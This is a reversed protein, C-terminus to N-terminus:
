SYRLGRLRIFEESIKTMVQSNTVGESSFTESWGGTVPTDDKSLFPPLSLDRRIWRLISTELDQIILGDSEEIVQLVVWGHQQFGRLREKKSEPNTIGIKRAGLTPNEIFYFLGAKSSTYGTRACTPCGTGNSRNAVQARFSHGNPCFWWAYTKSFSSVDRPTNPWNKSYDWEAAILPKQSELDNVGQVLINGACKPCGQGKRRNGISAQWTHGQMCIWHVIKNSRVTVDNPTLEGNKLDDWQEALKPNLTQLDNFGVLVKRGSCYPCGTGNISRNGVSAEYDHGLACTWWLKQTSAVSLAALDFGGNKLFNLENYLEPRKALLSTEGKIVKHGSCYPCGSGRSRNSTPAEWSHGKKCRWWYKPKTASAPIQDPKTEGNRNFDWEWVLDPQKTAFDNFGSLVKQNSCIPCGKGSTRGSVTMIYSHGLDCVWFAKVHSGKSVQAPVLDGNRKEDWSGAVLPHTTYLDNFGPLVRKGACFPCGSGRVRAYIRSKYKHGLNCIWNAELRSGVGLTRPDINNLEVDWQGMLDPRVTPLDNLGAEIVQGACMRCGNGKARSSITAEWKHGEQCKWWIKAGSGSTFELPTRGQNAEVDWEKSLKPHTISLSKCALCSPNSVMKEIRAQFAHGNECLWWVSKREWPSIGNPSLGVNLSPHWLKAVNPHLSRLSKGAEVM